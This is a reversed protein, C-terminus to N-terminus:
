ELSSVKATAIVPRERIFVQKVGNANAYEYRMVLNNGIVLFNTVIKASKVLNLLRQKCVNRRFVQETPRSATICEVTCTTGQVCRM